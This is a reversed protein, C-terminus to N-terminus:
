SWPLSSARAKLHDILARLAPSPHRRGPWYLHFGPFRVSWEPLLEVLRGDQLFGDVETNFAYGIGVGGLCAPLLLDWDNSIVPGQVALELQEEGRELEWRYLSGSTPIRGNLCRHQQLAQPTTPAGHRAIYSPAAVLVLRLDPSVKVAIMDQDVREGLRIGADFRSAVIDVIADDVVVDLVVEPYLACFETLAPGLVHRAGLRLTNIRLPGVVLDRAEYVDAVADRLAHLAPQLRAILREGAASPAVSRTTRHLLRVGLREELVRITQSLASPTVGLHAAARVFSGHEVIAAFATLETFESGRM